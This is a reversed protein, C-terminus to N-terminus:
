EINLSQKLFYAKPDSGEIDFVRVIYHSANGTNNDIWEWEKPEFILPFDKSSRINGITTKVEIYINRGNHSVVFDFDHSTTKLRYEKGNFLVLRANMDNPAYNSWRITSIDFHRCLIQYVYCEGKDGIERKREDSITQQFRDTNFDGQEQRLLMLLHNFDLSPYENFIEQIASLQTRDRQALELIQRSTNDDMNALKDVINKVKDYSSDNFIQNLHNLEEISNKELIDKVMKLKDDGQQVISGVLDMTTGEGLSWVILSPKTKKFYDMTDEFGIISNCLKGITFVLSRFEKDQKNGEYHKIKDDIFEGVVKLNIPMTELYSSLSSNLTFLEDRFDRKIHTNNACLDKLDESINEDKHVDHFKCFNNNQNLWVGIGSDKDTIISWYKKNKYTHLFEIFRDIRQALEANSNHTFYPSLAKFGDLNVSNAIRNSLLRIYYEQAFGWNFGSYSDVHKADSFTQGSIMQAFDYLKKEEPEGYDQKVLITITQRAIIEKTSDNSDDFIKKVYEYIDKISLPNHQEYGIISRHLLQHRYVDVPNTPSYAYNALDKFEEPISCDFRLDELRKLNNQQDPFVTQGKIFDGYSNDRYFQLYTNLWTLAEDVTKAPSFFTAAVASVNAKNAINTFSNNFWFIDAEKWLDIEVVDVMSYEPMTCYAKCFEYIDHRKKVFTADEINPYLALLSHAVYSKVDVVKNNKIISTGQKIYNNLAEIMEKLSFPLLTNGFITADVSANMLMHQITANDQNVSNYILKLKEPIRSSHDSKLDKLLMFDGKQNPIIAFNDFDVLLNQEVLFKYVMNLWVLADVETKNIKVCLTSLNHLNSLDTLFDDKDYKLKTGWSDYEPRIINLWGHLHEFKPLVGRGFYQGYLIDYFSENIEKTASTSFTPVSINKLIDVGNETEVLQEDLLRMRWTHQLNKIWPAAVDDSYKEPSEPIRSSALLYRNTARHSIFWENFNLAADVAKEVIQRNAVSNPHDASNLFLGNRRETPNFAFGNIIYPFYFRESGILPFDRYLIPQKSDHKVIEYVGDNEIVETTLAVDNTIYSLYKKTISDIVVCSLHVNDGLSETNCTYVVNTGNLRNIVHVQKIKKSQTVLTIPLTNVLDDLGAIASKRKEETTLHYIFVTDFSQETRTEEYNNVVQYTTEIHRLEELTSAIRPLLDESRYGSRDLTIAFRRNVDKYSVIGEVDIIDSILHTCIFGTGFKGTQGDLNQSDKSSVQQVLGTINKITFPNGNHRFKLTDQSALEIEVSVKGFRNPVDKANQLLEWIWRKASASPDERIQSLLQLIKDATLKYNNYAIEDDVTRFM